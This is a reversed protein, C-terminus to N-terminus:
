IAGSSSNKNNRFAIAVLGRGVLVRPHWILTYALYRTAFRDFKIITYHWIVAYPTFQEFCIIAGHSFTM